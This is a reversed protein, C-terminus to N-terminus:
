IMAKRDFMGEVAEGGDLNWKRSKEVDLCGYVHRKVLDLGM